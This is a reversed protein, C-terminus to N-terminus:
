YENIAASDFRRTSIKILGDFVESIAEYYWLCIRCVIFPKELFLVFALSSSPEMERGSRVFCPTMIPVAHKSHETKIPSLASLRQKHTVASGLQVRLHAIACIVAKKISRWKSHKM